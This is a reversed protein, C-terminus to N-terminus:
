GKLGGCSGLFDARKKGAYMETEFVDAVSCFIGFDVPLPAATRNRFVVAVRGAKGARVSLQKPSVEIGLAAPDPPPKPPDQAHCTGSAFIKDLDLDTGTCADPPAAGADPPAAGADPPAEVAALLVMLLAGIVARLIYALPRRGAEADRPDRHQ